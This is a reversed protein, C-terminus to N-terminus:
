PWILFAKFMSAGVGNLESLAMMVDVVEESMSCESKM